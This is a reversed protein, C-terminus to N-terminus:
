WKGIPCEADEFKTKYEIVCGCKGCLKNNMTSHPCAICTEIREHQKQVTVTQLEKGQIKSKVIDALTIGSM